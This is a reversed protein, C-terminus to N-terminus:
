APPRGGRRAPKFGHRRVTQALARGGVGGLQDALEAYTFVATAAACTEAFDERAYRLAREAQDRREAALAVEAALHAARKDRRRQEARYANQMEQM